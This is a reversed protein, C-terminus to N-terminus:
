RPGSQDGEKRNEKAGASCDRELHLRDRASLLNMPTSNCPSSDETAIWRVARTSIQFTRTGENGNTWNIFKRYIAECVLTSLVVLTLSYTFLSIICPYNGTSPCLEEDIWSRTPALSITFSSTELTESSCSFILYTYHITYNHVYKGKSKLSCNQSSKTLKQIM